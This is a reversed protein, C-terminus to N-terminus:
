SLLPTQRILKLLTAKTKNKSLNYSEYSELGRTLQSETARYRSLLQLVDNELYIMGQKQAFSRLKELALDIEDNALHEKLTKLLSTESNPSASVDERNFYATLEELFQTEEMDIFDLNFISKFRIEYDQQFAESKGITYKIAKSNGLLKWFLPRLYWKGFDVGLILFVEARFIKERVDLPIGQDSTLWHLYDFADENDLILSERDEISGLMDFLVTEHSGSIVSQLRHRSKNFIEYNFPVAEDQLARKLLLDPSISLIVPSPLRAILRYPLTPELDQYFKHILFSVKVGESPSYFQFLEDDDFFLARFKQVDEVGLYQKLKQSITKGKSDKYLNPGTLIICDRNLLADRIIDWDGATFQRKHKAAGKEKEKLIPSVLADHSIEYSSGTPMKEVRILKTEVLQDLLSQTVGKEELLIACDYRVRRGNHILKNQLLRHAARGEEHTILGKERLANISNVYFDNLIREIGPKGGLLEEKAVLEKEGANQMALIQKEVHQCLVQLQFPEIEGESNKLNGVMDAIIQDSYTFPATEFKENDEMGAPIIIAQKAQEIDLPDLQFRTSYIGPITKSMEQLLFLKDSRIIFLMKLKVPKHWEMYERTREEMKTKLYKTDVREPIKGEILYYLEKFFSKRHSDPHAFLEEFQDFILLPTKIEEFYNLERSKLLEWVGSHKDAYKKWAPQYAIKEIEQKLKDLPPNAIEQFRFILPKVNSLMPMLGAKLLSTKGIGSRAFMVVVPNVNVLNLLDEAEKKRGHFIEREYEEFSRTGPYRSPLKSEITEPNM